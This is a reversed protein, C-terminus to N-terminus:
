EKKDGGNKFLQQLKYKSNYYKDQEKPTLYKELIKTLEMEEVLLMIAKTELKGLIVALKQITEDKSIVKESYEVFM